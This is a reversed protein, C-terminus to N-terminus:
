LHPGVDQNRTLSMRISQPGTGTTMFATIHDTLGTQYKIVLVLFPNQTMSNM